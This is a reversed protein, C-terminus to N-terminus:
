PINIEIERNLSVTDDVIGSIHQMFFTKVHRDQLKLLCPLLCFKQLSLSFSPDGTKILTYVNQAATLGLPGSTSPTKAIEEYLKQIKIFCVYHDCPPSCEDQRASHYEESAKVIKVFFITLSNLLQVNTPYKRCLSLVAEFVKTLLSSGEDIV